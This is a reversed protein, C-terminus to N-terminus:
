TITKDQKNLDAVFVRIGGSHHRRMGLFKFGQKQYFAAAQENDESTWTRVKNHGLIRLQDFAARILKTGIGKGQVDPSVAISVVEAEPLEWESFDGTRFTKPRKIATLVRKIVSPRLFKSVASLMLPFFYRFITSKYMKSTNTACCIYGLPHHQEDEYVLVFGYPSSGIAWYLHECFRQGLSATLGTKISNRHLKAV